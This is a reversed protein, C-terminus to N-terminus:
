KEAFLERHGLPQDLQITIRALRIQTTCLQGEPVAKVYVGITVTADTERTLTGAPQTCGGYAIGLVLVRGANRTGLLSWALLKYRAPRSAPSLRPLPPLMPANKYLSGSRAPPGVPSDPAASAPQGCSTLLVVAACAGALGAAAAALAPRRAMTEM